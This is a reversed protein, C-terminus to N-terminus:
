QQVFPASLEAFRRVKQLDFKLDDDSRLRTEADIWIAVDGVSAEIRSLEDRVNQPGLGGAYGCLVGPLPEPWSEPVIGAGGSRDFLPVADLHARAADLLGDNVADFQFIFQSLGFARLADTAGLFAEWEVRHPRAHFNLQLRSFLEWVLRGVSGMFATDGGSLLNRLWRGCLHCSVRVDPRWVDVFKRLWIASPFRPGGMASASLLIGFELFPWDSSLAVLDEPRCSDDAGTITVYRLKM